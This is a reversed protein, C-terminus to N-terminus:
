LEEDKTLLRSKREDNKYAFSFLRLGPNFDEMKLSELLSNVADQNENWSKTANMFVIAAHAAHMVKAPFISNEVQLHLEVRCKLPDTIRLRKM